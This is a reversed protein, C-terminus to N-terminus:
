IGKCVALRDKLQGIETRFNRQAEGQAQRCMAKMMRPTLNQHLLQKAIDNLVGPVPENDEWGMWGSFAEISKCVLAITEPATAEIAELQELQDTMAKQGKESCDPKEQFPPLPLPTNPLPLQQAVAGTLMLAAAATAMSVAITRSTM